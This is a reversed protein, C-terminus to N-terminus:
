GVPHQAAASDQERWRQERRRVQQKVRAHGAGRQGRAATSLHALALGLCAVVKRPYAVATTPMAGEPMSRALIVSRHSAATAAPRSPRAATSATTIAARALGGGGLVCARAPLLSPSTVHAALSSSPQFEKTDVAAQHSPSFALVSHSSHQPRLSVGVAMGALMRAAAAAAM